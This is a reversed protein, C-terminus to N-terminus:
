MWLRQSALLREVAPNGSFGQNITNFEQISRNEWFDAAVMKVAMKIHPPVLQATTWGCVYRITIPNSPYLTGSPWPTAYPLVIRGIMAGNKEVLYDTNEVLTTEVADTDKWKVSTVSQLNGLPLDVFTASPWGQLCYDWTQTMIARRTWDEVQARAAALIDVLDNDEATTGDDIRLHLKLEDLTVPETVPLVVLGGGYSPITTLDPVDFVPLEAELEFVEAYTTTTAKCIITYIMGSTGGTVWVYVKQGSITQKAATTVTATKDTGASDKASVVASAVTDTSTMVNSFDFTVYYSETSQKAGFAEM